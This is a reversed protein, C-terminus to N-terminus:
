RRRSSRCRIRCATTITAPSATPTPRTIVTVASDEPHAACLALHQPRQVPHPGVDHDGRRGPGRGAQSLDSGLGVDLVGVDEAAGALGLWPGSSADATAAMARSGSTPAAAPPNTGASILVVIGAPLMGGGDLM